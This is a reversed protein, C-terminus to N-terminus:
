DSRVVIGRARKEVLHKKEALLGEFPVVFSFGGSTIGRRKWCCTSSRGRLSVPKRGAYPFPTGGKPSKKLLIGEKKAYRRALKGVSFGKPRLIKGASDGRHVPPFLKKEKGKASKGLLLGRKGARSGSRKERDKRGL